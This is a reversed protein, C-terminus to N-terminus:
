GQIRDIISDWGEYGRKHLKSSTYKFRGNLMESAHKWDSFEEEFARSGPLPTAPDMANDGWPLNKVGGMFDAIRCHMHHLIDVYEPCDRGISLHKDSLEGDSLLYVQETTYKRGTSLEEWGKFEPGFIAIAM